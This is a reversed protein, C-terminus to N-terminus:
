FIYYLYLYLHARPRGNVRLSSVMAFFASNGFKNADCPRSLDVGKKHLYRLVEPRDFMCALFAPTNGVDDGMTLDSYSGSLHLDNVTELDGEVIAQYM